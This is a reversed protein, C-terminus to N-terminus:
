VFMVAFGNGGYSKAPRHPCRGRRSNVMFRNRRPCANSAQRSLCRKQENWECLHGGSVRAGVRGPNMQNERFKAPSEHIAGVPTATLNTYSKAPRHPCRGRRSNVTFRNRRPCANSAQRSLCRKQENWECLHGVSM